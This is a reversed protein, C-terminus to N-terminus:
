NFSLHKMQCIQGNATVYYGQELKGDYEAIRYYTNYFNLVEYNLNLSDSFERIELDSKLMILTKNKEPIYDIIVDYGKIQPILSNSNNYTESSVFFESYNSNYDLPHSSSHCNVGEKIYHVIKNNNSGKFVIFAYDDYEYTKIIYVSPYEYRFADIYKTHKIIRKEVYNNFLSYSIIISIVVSLIIRLEYQSKLLVSILLITIPVIFIILLYRISYYNLKQSLLFVFLLYIIVIIIPIIFLISIHKINNKNFSLQVNTNLVMDGISKNIFMITMLSIPMTILSIVNRLIIKTNSVYIINSNNIVQLKMIKKGISMSQIDKIVILFIGVIIFLIKTITILSNNYEIGLLIFKLSIVVLSMILIIDIFDALLRKFKM